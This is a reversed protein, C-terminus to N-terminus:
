ISPTGHKAGREGGQGALRVAADIAELKGTM